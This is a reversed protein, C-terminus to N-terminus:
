TRSHYLFSMITACHSANALSSNVRKAVAFKESAAQVRMLRDNGLHFNSQPVMLFFIDFTHSLPQFDPLILFLVFCFCFSVFKHLINVLVHIEATIGRLCDLMVSM